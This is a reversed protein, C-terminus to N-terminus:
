AEWKKGECRYQMSLAKVRVHPKTPPATGSSPATKFILFFIANKPFSKATITLLIM